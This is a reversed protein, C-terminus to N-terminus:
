CSPTRHKDKEVLMRLAAMLLTAEHTHGSHIARWLPDTIAYLRAMRRGAQARQQHERTLGVHPM